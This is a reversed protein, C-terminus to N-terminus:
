RGEKYRREPEVDCLDQKWPNRNACNVKMKNGGIESADM